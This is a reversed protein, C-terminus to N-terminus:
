DLNWDSGWYVITVTILAAVFLGGVACIASRGPHTDRIQVYLIQDFSFTSAAGGKPACDLTRAAADVTTPVQRVDVVEGTRLAVYQVQGEPRWGAGDVLAAPNVALSERADQGGRFRFERVVALPAVVSEGSASTGRIDMTTLDVRGGAADFPTRVVDRTEEGVWVVVEDVVVSSALDESTVFRGTSACGFVLPACAAFALVAIERRCKGLITTDRRRVPVAVGM